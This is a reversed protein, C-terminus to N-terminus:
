NTARIKGALAFYRRLDPKGDPHVIGLFRCIEGIPAGESYLLKFANVTESESLTPVHVCDFMLRLETTHDIGSIVLCPISEMGLEVAVAFRREGRLIRYTGNGADVVTLPQWPYWGNEALSKRLGDLNGRERDGFYNPNTVIQSTPLMKYSAQM